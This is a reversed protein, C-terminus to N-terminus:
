CKTDDFVDDILDLSLTVGSESYSGCTDYM